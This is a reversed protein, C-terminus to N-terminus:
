FHETKDLPCKCRVAPRPRGARTLPGARCNQTETWFHGITLFCQFQTWFQESTDPPSMKPTQRIISRRPQHNRVPRELCRECCSQSAFPKPSPPKGPRSRAKSFKKPAVSFRSSTPCNSTSPPERPLLSHRSATASKPRSPQWDTSLKTSLSVPSESFNASGGIPQNTPTTWSRISLKIPKSVRIGNPPLQQDGRNMSVRAEAIQCRRLNWWCGCIEEFLLTQIGTSPKLSGRLDSEMQLFNNEQTKLIIVGRAAATQLPTLM